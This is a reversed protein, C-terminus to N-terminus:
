IGEELVRLLMVYGQKILCHTHHTWFMWTHTGGGVGWWLFAATMCFVERDNADRKESEYIIFAIEVTDKCLLDMDDCLREHAPNFLSPDLETQPFVGANIILLPKLATSQAPINLWVVHLFSVRGM